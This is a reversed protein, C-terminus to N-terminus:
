FCNEESFGKLFDCGPLKLFLRAIYQWECRQKLAKRKNLFKTRFDLKIFVSFQYIVGSLLCIRLSVCFYTMCKRYLIASNSTSPM